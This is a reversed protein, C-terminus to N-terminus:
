GWSCALADWVIIPWGICPEFGEAETGPQDWFLRSDEQETGTVGAEAWFREAVLVPGIGLEFRDWLGLPTGCAGDDEWLLEVGPWEDLGHISAGFVREVTRIVPATEEGIADVAFHAFSNGERL